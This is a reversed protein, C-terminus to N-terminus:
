LAYFDICRNPAYVTLDERLGFSFAELYGVCVRNYLGRSIPTPDCTFVRTDPPQGTLDDVDCVLRTNGIAAAPTSTVDNRTSEPMDAVIRLVVEDNETIVGVSRISIRGQTNIAIETSLGENTDLPTDFFDGPNGDNM